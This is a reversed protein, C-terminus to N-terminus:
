FCLNHWCMPLDGDLYWKGRWEVLKLSTGDATTCIGYDPERDVLQTCGRYAYYNDFSAHAQDLEIFQWILALVVVVILLLILAWLQKLREKM